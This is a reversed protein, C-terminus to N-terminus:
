DGEEFDELLCNYVTEYVKIGGRLSFFRSTTREMVDDSGAPQLERLIEHLTQLTRLREATKNETGSGYHTDDYCDFCLRVSVDTSGQHVGAGFTKWSVEPIDILVCPFTVPYTDEGTELQGCYEDVLSLQPMGDAVAAQIELFLDEM